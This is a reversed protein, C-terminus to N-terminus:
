VSRVPFRADFETEFFDFTDQDIITFRLDRLSDSPHAEAWDQLTQLLVSACRHKPFGFIGASIAPFAISNLGHERAIELAATAASCLLRDSEEASQGRWYPGVAHIVFRAVLKGAGTLAANGTKVRGVRDSEDQIEYGGKRVIAGAVGGGHVLGSNAANVIADVPEETIDGLRLALHHGSPLTVERHTIPKGRQLLVQIRETTNTHM